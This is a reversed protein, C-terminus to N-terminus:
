DNVYRITSIQWLAPQLTSPFFSRGIILFSGRFQAWSFVALTCSILAMMTIHSWPVYTQYPFYGLSRNGMLHSNSNIFYTLYNPFVRCHVSLQSWIHLHSNVFVTVWYFRIAYIWFFLMHIYVRVYVGYSVCMFISVVSVPVLVISM